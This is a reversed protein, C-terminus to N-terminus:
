LNAPRGQNQTMMNIRKSMTKQSHFNLLIFLTNSQDTGIFKSHPIKDSLNYTFAEFTQCKWNTLTTWLTIDYSRHIM